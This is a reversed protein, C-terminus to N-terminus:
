FWVKRILRFDNRECRKENVVGASFRGATALMLAPFDQNAQLDRQVNHLGVIPKQKVEVAIVM